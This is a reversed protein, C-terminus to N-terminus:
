HTALKLTIFLDMFFVSYYKSIILIKGMLYYPSNFFSHKIPGHDIQFNQMKKIWKFLSSLDWSHGFGEMQRELTVLQETRDM